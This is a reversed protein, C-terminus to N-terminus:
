KAQYDLIRQKVEEDSLQAIERILDDHILAALGNVTPKEFIASLPLAVNFAARLRALLQMAKLSSVGLDLLNDDVDVDPNGILDVSIQRIQRAIPDTPENIPRSRSGERLATHDLKGNPTLPLRSVTHIAAPIMHAPLRSTLFARLENATSKSVVYAILMPSQEKDREVIAVAENVSAHAKLVAEVEGLEIRFGAIKVQRDRRGEFILNGTEDFRARDGTRYLRRGGRQSAFPDPIFKEATVDPRNFYGRAVGDGGIFLEGSV